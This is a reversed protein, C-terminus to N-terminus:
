RTRGTESGNERPETGEFNLDSSVGVTETESVASEKPVPMCIRQMYKLYVHNLIGTQCITLNVHMIFIIAPDLYEKGGNVVLICQLCNYKKKM